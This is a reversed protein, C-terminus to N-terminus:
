GDSAQARLGAIAEHADKRGFMRLTRGNNKM